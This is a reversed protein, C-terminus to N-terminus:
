TLRAMLAATSPCPSAARRTALIHTPLAPEGLVLRLQPPNADIPEIIM